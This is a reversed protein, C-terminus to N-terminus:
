RPDHKVSRSLTEIALDIEEIPDEKKVTKLKEITQEMVTRQKIFYRLMRDMFASREQPTDFHKLLQRTKELNATVDQPIRESDHRVADEPCVDHCTGCRICAEDDIVAKDGNDMTIAGVPCEDVCVNCGTCMQRNIWPM